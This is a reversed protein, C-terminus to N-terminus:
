PPIMRNFPPHLKTFYLSRRKKKRFTAVMKFRSGMLIEENFHGGRVDRPM